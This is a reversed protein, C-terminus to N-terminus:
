DCFEDSTLDCCESDAQPEYSEDAFRVMAINHRINCYTNMDSGRALIEFILYM